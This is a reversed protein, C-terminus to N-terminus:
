EAARVQLTVTHVEATSELGPVTSSSQWDQLTSRPQEDDGLTLTSVEHGKRPGCQVYELLCRITSVLHSLKAWINRILLGWIDHM